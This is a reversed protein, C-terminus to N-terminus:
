SNLGEYIKGLEDFFAYAKKEMKKLKSYYHKDEVLHDMAIERALAKNTTHETEVKKGMKLQKTPLDKPNKKDALGGKIVDKHASM